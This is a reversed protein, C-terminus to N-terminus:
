RSGASGPTTPSRISPPAPRARPIESSGVEGGVSEDGIWETAARARAQIARAVPRAESRVAVDLEQATRIMLDLEATEPDLGSFNLGRELRMGRHALHRDHRPAAPAALWHEDEVDRGPRCRRGLRESSVQGRARGAYM